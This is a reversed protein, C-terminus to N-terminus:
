GEVNPVYKTVLEEIRQPDPLFRYGDRARRTKFGLSRIIGGVRKPGIQNGGRDQILANVRETVAKVTLYAPAEIKLQAKLEPDAELESSLDRIAEVIVSQPREARDERGFESLFKLYEARFLEDKTISHLTTGIQTLRPDLHILPTEDVRLADLNAFRWGLLQNRIELAEDWFREPLQRPVDDRLKREEPMYTLCRSELASDSFRHRSALIKPGFVHFARPEFTRGVSESRVAPLRAMYGCNLLRIVEAWESSHNFDCEDLALTGRWLDTLRFIASVSISGGCIISKYCLAGVVQLFRSKGTGHESLLRLYPVATFRDYVWTMLVYHAVMKEWFPPIDLYRHIFRILKDVLSAQDVAPVPIGKSPLLVVGQRVMDDLLPPKIKNLEFPISSGFRRQKGLDYYNFRLPWKKEEPKYVTEILYGNRHVLSPMRLPAEPEAPEKGDEKLAEVPASELQEDTSEQIRSSSLGAAADVESQSPPEVDAYTPNVFDETM